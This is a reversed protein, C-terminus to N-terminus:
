DLLLGALQRLNVEAVKLDYKARTYNNRANFLNIQAQRFEISTVQGLSYQKETRRFNLENTEINKAEAEFTKAAIRYTEVANLLETNVERKIKERELRRNEQTIRSTQTQTVNRGDFLAWSLSLGLNIGSTETALAFSTPPNQSENWRYAGSGSIKPLFKAKSINIDLDSLYLNQRALEMQINNQQAENILETMNEIPSFRIATDTKFSTEIARGLILNLNRKLNNLDRVAEFYAISDNNLDVQANSVDLSTGQGYKINKQARLFRIRSNEITLELNEVVQKQFAVNFFSQYVSIITNEIQQREQLTSLKVNEERKDQNFKREMGDFLVYEATVSANYSETVAGDISTSNGDAFTVSQNEEAYNIGGSARLTPLYGSNLTGAQKEAIVTNNGAIKLDYNNKVAIALADELSLLEQTAGSRVIFCTFILIWNFRRM